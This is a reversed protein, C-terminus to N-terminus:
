VGAVTSICQGSYAHVTGNGIRPGVKIMGELCNQPRRIICHMLCRFFHDNENIWEQIM